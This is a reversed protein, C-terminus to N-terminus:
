LRIALIRYGWGWRRGVAQGRGIEVAPAGVSAIEIGIIPIQHDRIGGLIVQPLALIWGAINIGDAGDNVEGRHRQRGHEAGEIVEGVAAGPVLREELHRDLMGEGGHIVEQVRGDASGEGHGVAIRKLAARVSHRVILECIYILVYLMVTYWLSLSENSRSIYSAKM